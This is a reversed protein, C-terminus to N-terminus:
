SLLASAAKGHPPEKLSLRCVPGGRELSLAASLIEEKTM